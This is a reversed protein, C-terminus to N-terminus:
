PSCRSCRSHAVTQGLAAHILLGSMAMGLVPLVLVSGTGGQFALATAWAAGMLLAGVGLAAWPANNSYGYALAGAFMAAMTLLLAKDNSHLKM